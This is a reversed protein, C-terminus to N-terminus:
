AASPPFIGSPLTIVQLANPNHEYSFLYRGSGEEFYLVGSMEPYMDFLGTKEDFLCLRVEDFDVLAEFEGFVAVVYPVELSRVLSRYAQAKRDICHYMRGVNDANEDRRYAALGRAERQKRIQNETLRDIHFNTLEVIGTVASEDSVICWDPTQKGAPHDHRVQLDYASLYAGLILERFTHMIQDSDHPQERFKKRFKRQDEECVYEFCYHIFENIRKSGAIQDDQTHDQGLPYSTM